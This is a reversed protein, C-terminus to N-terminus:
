HKWLPSIGNDYFFKIFYTTGHLASDNDGNFEEEFGGLTYVGMLKDEQKHTKAWEDIERGIESQIEEESKEYLGNIGEWDKPLLDWRGVYVKM